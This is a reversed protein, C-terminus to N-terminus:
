ATKRRLVPTRGPPPRFRPSDRQYSSVASVVVYLAFTAHGQASEDSFSPLPRFPLMEGEEDLGRPEEPEAGLRRDLRHKMGACRAARDADAVRCDPHDMSGVATPELNGAFGGAERRYRPLSLAVGSVTALISTAIPGSANSLSRWPRCAPRSAPRARCPPRRRHSVGEQRQRGVLPPVKEFGGGIPQAPGRHDELLVRPDTMDEMDVEGDRVTMRHGELAAGREGRSSFQRLTLVRAAAPASSARSPRFSDNRHGDVGTPGSGGETSPWRILGEISVRMRIAATSSAAAPSIGGDADVVIRVPHPQGVGRGDVVGVAVECRLNQQLEPAAVDDTGILPVLDGRLDGGQDRVNAPGGRSHCDQSRRAGDPLLCRQDMDLTVPPPEGGARLSKGTM